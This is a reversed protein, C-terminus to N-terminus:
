HKFLHALKRARFSVDFIWPEYHGLIAHSVSIFFWVDLKLEWSVCVRAWISFFLLGNKQFELM